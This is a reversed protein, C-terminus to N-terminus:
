KVIAIKTGDSLNLQGEVILGDGDTLGEVVEVDLGQSRGLEVRQKRARGEDALFVFAEDGDFVLDKRRLVIAADERFASIRVEVTLGPQIAWGPNDFEAEVGFTQTTADFGMDVQVVKGRITQGQWSAEAPTGVRISAIETEPVRVRAKLRDINAVTLLPQDREVFDTERVLLKTVVGSIPARVKVMQRVADWNAQEVEFATKANDREQLSVGGAQYLGELRQYTTKAHEFAAQAQRYQAGPSDIPFEVVIQDKEVVDGVAVDIREIKDSLGAYAMTERIGSLAVHYALTKEFPSRSVPVVRVPVGDERYIQEMSKAEVPVEHCNWISGALVAVIIMRQISNMTLSAEVFMCAHIDFVITLM